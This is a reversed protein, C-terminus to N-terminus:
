LIIPFLDAGLDLPQHDQPDKDHGEKKPSGKEEMKTKALVKLGNM